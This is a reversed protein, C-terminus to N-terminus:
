TLGPGPSRIDDTRPTSCGACKTAIRKYGRQSEPLAVSGSDIDDPITAIGM